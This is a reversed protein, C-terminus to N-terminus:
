LPGKRDDRVEVTSVRMRHQGDSLHRPDRERCTSLEFRTDDDFFGDNQRLTAGAGCIDAARRLSGVRIGDAWSVQAASAVCQYRYVDFPNGVGALRKPLWM